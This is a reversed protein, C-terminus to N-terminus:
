KSHTPQRSRDILENVLDALHQLPDGPRLHIKRGASAGNLLAELDKEIRYFPGAIKRSVWLSVFAGIAMALAAIWVWDQLWNAIVLVAAM